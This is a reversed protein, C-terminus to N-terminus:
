KRKMKRGKKWFLYGIFGGAVLFGEFLVIRAVMGIANFKNAVTNYAVTTIAPDFAIDQMTQGTVSLKKKTYTKEKGDGREILTLDYTGASVAITYQGSGDTQVSTVRRQSNTEYVTIEANPLPRLSSDRAVGSIQVTEAYVPAAVLLLLSFCIVFRLLQLM